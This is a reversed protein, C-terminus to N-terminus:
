SQEKFDKTQKITPLDTRDVDVSVPYIIPWGGYIQRVLESANAQSCISPSLKSGHWAAHENHLHSCEICKYQDQSCPSSFFIIAQQDGKKRDKEKKLYWSSWQM